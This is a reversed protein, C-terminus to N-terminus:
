GGDTQLRAYVLYLRQRPGPATYPAPADWRPLGRARVQPNFALAPLGEGGSVLKSKAEVIQGPLPVASWGAGHGLSKASPSWFLGPGLSWLGLALLGLWRSLM